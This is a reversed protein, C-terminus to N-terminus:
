KEGSSTREAELVGQVQWRPLGYNDCALGLYKDPVVYVRKNGERAEHVGALAKLARPILAAGPAGKDGTILSWQSRLGSANIAVGDDRVYVGAKKAANTGKLLASCAAALVRAREDTMALLEHYERMRGDVLFRRGRTVQRNARLWAVHEAFSGPRGPGGLWRATYQRGGLDRLYDVAEPDIGFWRIRSAVAEIDAQTHAGILPLADANNAAIIVRMAGRLTMVPQGKPELRHETEAVLSRFAASPNRVDQSATMQEDLFVVPTKALGDNHKATAKEFTEFGRGFLSAVCAGFFGKGAGGPGQLYLACTPSDLETVTALWDLLAEHDDGGLLELWGQVDAHHRPTVEVATAGPVQLSFTEADLVPRTTGHAVVVDTVQVGYDVVLAPMPRMSGKETKLRLKLPGGEDDGRDGCGRLLLAPILAPNRTFPYYRPAEPDRADLIYFGSGHVVIPALPGDDADGDDHQEVEVTARDPAQGAPGGTLRERLVRAKEARERAVALRGEEVAVRREVASWAEDLAEGVATGSVGTECAYEVCPRVARYILEATDQPDPPEAQGEVAPTYILEAILAVGQYVAENRQGVGWWPRRKQIGQALGEVRNAGQGTGPYRRRLAGDIGLQAWELAGVEPAEKPRRLDTSAPAHRIPAREAAQLWDSVQLPPGELGVLDMFGDTPCGDRMVRPARFCRTWQNCSPDIEGQTAPDLRLASGLWGLLGSPKNKEDGPHGLTARYRSAPIPPEVAFVVRWGHRTAYVGARELAGGDAGHVDLINLLVEAAEAPSAWARHGQLDVDIFIAQVEVRGGAEKVHALVPKNLRPHPSPVAGEHVVVAPHLMADTDYSAELASTLDVVPHVQAEGDLRDVGATHITPLVVVQPGGM